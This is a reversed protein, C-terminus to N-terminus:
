STVATESNTIQGSVHIPIDWFMTQPGGFPDRETHILNPKDKAIIDLQTKVTKNCYMVTGEIGLETDINNYMEILKNEDVWNASGTSAINALRQVARDDAVCIGLNFIFQTVWMYLRKSGTTTILELGKDNREIGVTKSNRPYVFYVGEDVGWKVLYVSTLASSGGADFVNELDTDNFRPQLGTVSSPDSSRNGYFVATEIQKGIGKANMNDRDYRFKKPNPNLKVLLEDVESRGELYGIPETVQGTHSASPNVGENVDRWTATGESEARQFVHGTLQNAETWAADKVTSLRKSLVDVVDLVEKNNTAKALDLLTYYSATETAM